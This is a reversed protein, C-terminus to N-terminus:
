CRGAVFRSNRNFWVLLVHVVEVEVMWNGVALVALIGSHVEVKPYNLVLVEGM